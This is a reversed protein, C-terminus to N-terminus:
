TLASWTTAPRSGSVGGSGAGCASGAALTAATSSSVVGAAVSTPGAVRNVWGPVTSTGDPALARAWALMAASSTRESVARVPRGAVEASCSTRARHDPQPAAASM